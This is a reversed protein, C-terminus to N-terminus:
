RTWASSKGPKPPELLGGRRGVVGGEEGARHDARHVRHADVARVDDAVRHAAAHRELEPMRAGRGRRRGRAATGPSRTRARALQCGTTRTRRGSSPSSGCESRGRGRRPGTRTATRRGRRSRGSRPRRRRRRTGACRRRAPARARRGRGRRAVDVEVFGNPLRRSRGAGPRARAAPATRRPSARCASGARSGAGRRRIAARAGLLDHEVAAAVHRLHLARLLGVPQERAEERAGVRQAPAGCARRPRMLVASRSAVAVAPRPRSPADGCRSRRRPPARRPAGAPSIPEAARRADGSGDGAPM